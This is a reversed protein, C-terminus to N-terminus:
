NKPHPQQQLISTTSYSKKQLKLTPNINFMDTMIFNLQDGAIKNMTKTEEHIEQLQRVRDPVTSTTPM